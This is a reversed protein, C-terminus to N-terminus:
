QQTLEKEIQDALFRLLAPIALTQELALQASFGHGYKGSFVVILAGEAQAEERVKTCIDDYKGPGLM